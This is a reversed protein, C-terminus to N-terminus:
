SWGRREVVKAWRLFVYFAGTAAVFFGPFGYLAGGRVLYARLFRWAPEFVLRGAGM